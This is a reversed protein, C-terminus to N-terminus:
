LKMLLDLSTFPIIKSVIDRIFLSRTKLNVRPVCLSSFSEFSVSLM